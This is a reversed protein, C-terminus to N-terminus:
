KPGAATFRADRDYLGALEELARVQAQGEARDMDRKSNIHLLNKLVRRRAGPEFQAEPLDSVDYRDDSVM